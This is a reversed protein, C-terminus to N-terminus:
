DSHFRRTNWCSCQHLGHGACCVHKKEGVARRRALKAERQGTALHQGQGTPQGHRKIPTSHKHSLFFSLFFHRVLRLGFAM